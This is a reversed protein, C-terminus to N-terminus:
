QPSAGAKHEPTSVRAREGFDRCAIMKMAFADEHRAGEDDNNAGEDGQITGEDERTCIRPARSGATAAM